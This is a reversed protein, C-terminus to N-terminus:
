YELWIICTAPSARPSMFATQDPDFARIRHTKALLAAGLGGGNRKAMRLWPGILSNKM